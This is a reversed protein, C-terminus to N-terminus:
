AAESLDPEEAEMPEVDVLTAGFERLALAVMGHPDILVVQGGKLEVPRTEAEAKQNSYPLVVDVM